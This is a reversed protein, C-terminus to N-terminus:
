NIRRMIAHRRSTNDIRGVEDAFVRAMGEPDSISTLFDNATAWTLNDYADYCVPAIGFAHAVAESVTSDLHVQDYALMGPGMVPIAVQAHQFRWWHRFQESTTGPFRKFALSLFTGGTRPSVMSFMPGAMVEVSGPEVLPGLPEILSRTLAPLASVRASSVTVEVAGDVPRSQDVADDSETGGGADPKDAIGIRLQADGVLRGIIDAAQALGSELLERRGNRADFMLALRWTDSLAM